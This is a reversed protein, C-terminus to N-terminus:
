SGKRFNLFGRRPKKLVDPTFIGEKEGENVAKYQAAALKPALFEGIMEHLAATLTIKQQKAWWEVGMHDPRSLYVHRYRKAVTLIYPKEDAKKSMQACGGDYGHACIM